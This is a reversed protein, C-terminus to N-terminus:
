RASIAQSSRHPAGLEDFTDSGGSSCCLCRWLGTCPRTTVLEDSVYQDTTARAGIRYSIIAPWSQRPIDRQSWWVSTKEANRSSNGATKLLPVALLLLALLM